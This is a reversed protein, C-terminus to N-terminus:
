PVSAAPTTGRSDNGCGSSIFAFIRASAARVPPTDLPTKADSPLKSSDYNLKALADTVEAAAALLAGLDPRIAKPASALAAQSEHRHRETSKRLAAPSRGVASHGLAWDYTKAIETCIRGARRTRSAASAEAGAPARPTTQATSNANSSGCAVTALSVALAAAGLVTMRHVSGM